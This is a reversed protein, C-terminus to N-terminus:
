ASKYGLMFIRRFPLLIKHNKQLPYADAVAEIYQQEFKLREDTNMASLVPSLGTGKIWHFIAPYDPMEQYYETEWLQVSDMGLKTLLDYYWFPQYLPKTMTSYCLNKLLTQWNPNSQLIRISIQHMSSHFNNPMQIALLGSVNLHQLLKPFLIEHHDLWQLSANAFFCDIKEESAFDAIDAELFTIDSYTKRAQELMTPSSDIGVIKADPWREKLLITSNGPGCGLDYIIKPHFFHPIAALLDRAPRTRLDLYRSYNEVNWFDM